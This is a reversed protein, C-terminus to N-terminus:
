GNASTRGGPGFPVTVSGSPSNINLVAPLNTLRHLDPLDLDLDLDTFPWWGQYNVTRVSTTGRNVHWNACDQRPWLGTEAGIRNFTDCAAKVDPDDNRPGAQAPGATLALAALLAGGTIVLKTTTRM